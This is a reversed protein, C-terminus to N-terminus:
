KLEEQEIRRGARIDKIARVVSSLIMLALFFFGIVITMEPWKLPVRLWSDSTRNQQFSRELFSFGGYFVATTFALALIQTGLRLWNSVKTQLRTILAEVRVHAKEKWTFALGIFTITIMMYRGLEDALLPSYSFVYRMFVEFLVLFCMVLVLWGAFYGTAVAIKEPISGTISFLKRM